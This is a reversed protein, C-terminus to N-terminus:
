RIEEEMKSLKQYAELAVDVDINMKVRKTYRSGTISICSHFKTQPDLSAPKQQSLWFLAESGNFPTVTLGPVLVRLLWLLPFMVTWFWSPMIKYTLNTMVLGPCATHSYIGKNNFTQNIAVSIVDLLYKSSSYPERGHEHQIDDLSFAEKKANQSSTWIIQSDGDRGGLVEELEKVLVFHGFVNTAFIEKLGDETSGNVQMLLGDGTRFMHVVETSFFTKWFHSWDVTSVPLIGANMFLYDLHGYRTRLEQAAAHVSALKSVDVLLIDVRSAPHQVLLQGRAAKARAENRCGLCVTIGSDVSLLRDAVALGIGANGGTILAVKGGVTEM